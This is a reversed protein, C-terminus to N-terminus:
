VRFPEFPSEMVRSSASPHECIDVVVEQMGRGRIKTSLHDFEKYPDYHRLSRLDEELFTCILLFSVSEDGLNSRLGCKHISRQAIFDFFEHSLPNKIPVPNGDNLYTGM